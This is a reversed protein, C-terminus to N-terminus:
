KANDDGLILTMWILSLVLKFPYNRAFRVLKFIFNLKLRSTSFNTSMSRLKQLTFKYDDRVSEHLDILNHFRKESWVWTFLPSPYFSVNKTTSLASFVFEVDAHTYNSEEFINVCSDSNFIHTQLPAWPMKCGLLFEGLRLELNHELTSFGFINVLSDSKKGKMNFPFVIHNSDSLLDIIKNFDLHPNLEDGAFLFMFRTNSVLKLAVNWNPIRGINFNNKHYHIPFSFQGLVSRIDDESDNDVVIINLKNIARSMSVSKLTRRLEESSNYVPILVDIKDSM